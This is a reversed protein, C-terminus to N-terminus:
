MEVTNEKGQLQKKKVDTISAKDKKCDECFWEEKNKSIRQYTKQSMNICGRHMWKNCGDCLVAEQDDYVDRKCM